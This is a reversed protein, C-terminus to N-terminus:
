LFLAGIFEYKVGVLYFGLFLNFVLCFCAANPLRLRCIPDNPVKWNSAVAVGDIRSYLRTDDEPWALFKFHWVCVIRPSPILRSSLLHHSQEVPWSGLNYDLLEHEHQGNILSCLSCQILFLFGNM